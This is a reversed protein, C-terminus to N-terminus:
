AWDGKLGSVREVLKKLMSDNMPNALAKEFLRYTTADNKKLWIFSQKSGWYRKKRIGFYEYLLAEHLWSRRYNGEIDGVKTRDFMKHLWVKRVEIEDAPLPKFKKKSAAKLKRLLQTGFNEREYIIKAENM